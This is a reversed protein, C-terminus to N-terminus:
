FNTRCFWLISILGRKDGLFCRPTMLKGRTAGVGLGSVRGLVRMKGPKLTRCIPRRLRVRQRALSITSWLAGSHPDGSNFVEPM